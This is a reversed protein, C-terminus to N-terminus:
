ALEEPGHKGIRGLHTDTFATPLKLGYGLARDMGVHAAFLYAALMLGPVALWWGAAYVLVALAWNHVLNYTLAGVRPGGLYGAISLDPAFLLPLGLPNGGNGLYLALAALFIAISEARLIGNVLGM